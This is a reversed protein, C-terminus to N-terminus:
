SPNKPPASGRLTIIGMVLCFLGGAASALRPKGEGIVSIAVALFALGAATFWLIATLRKPPTM